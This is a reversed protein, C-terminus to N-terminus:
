RSTKNLTASTASIPAPSRAIQASRLGFAFHGDGPPGEEILDDINVVIKLPIGSSLADLLGANDATSPKVGLVVLYDPFM